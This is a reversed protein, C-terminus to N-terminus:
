TPPVRRHTVLSMCFGRHQAVKRLTLKRRQSMPNINIGIQYLSKPHIQQSVVSFAKILCTAPNDGLYISSAILCLSTFDSGSHLFPEISKDSDLWDSDLIRNAALFM